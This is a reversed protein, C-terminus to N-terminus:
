IKPSFKGFMTGILLGLWTLYQFVSFHYGSNIKQKIFIYHIAVILQSM